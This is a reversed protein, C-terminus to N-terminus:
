HDLDSNGPAYSDFKERARIVDFDHKGDFIKLLGKFKGIQAFFMGNRSLQDFEGKAGLEIEDGSVLAKPISITNDKM